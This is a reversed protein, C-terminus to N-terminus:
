HVAMWRGIPGTWEKLVGGILRHEGLRPESSQQVPRRAQRDAVAKRVWNRWTAQWDTKTADKGSKACWYDRFREAERRADDATM